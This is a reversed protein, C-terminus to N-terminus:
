FAQALCITQWPYLGQCDGCEVRRINGFWCYGLRLLERRHSKVCLEHRYQRRDWFFRAPLRVSLVRWRSLFRPSGGQRLLRRVGFSFPSSCFYLIFSYLSSFRLSNCRSVSDKHPDKPADMCVASWDRAHQTMYGYDTLLNRQLPHM